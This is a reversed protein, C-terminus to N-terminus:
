LTTENKGEKELYERVAKRQQILNYCRMCLDKGNVTMYEMGEIDPIKTDCLYCKTKPKM